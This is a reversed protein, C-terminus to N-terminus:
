KQTSNLLRRVQTDSWNTKGQKTYYKDTLEKAIATNGLGQEKLKKIEKVAEDFDKIEKDSINRLNDSEKNDGENDSSDENAITSDENSLNDEKIEPPTDEIIAEIDENSLASETLPVNEWLDEKDETINLESLTSKATTDEKDEFDKIDSLNDSKKLNQVYINETEKKFKELITLRALIDSIQSNIDSVNGYDIKVTRDGLDEKNVNGIHDLGVRILDLIVPTVSVKPQIVKGKKDVKFSGDSNPKTTPAYPLGNDIAIKEIQSYISIPVRLDIREVGETKDRAM